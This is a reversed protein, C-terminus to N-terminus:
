KQAETEDTTMTTIEVKKCAIGNVCVPPTSHALILLHPPL